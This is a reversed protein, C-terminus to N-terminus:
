WSSVEWEVSPLPSPSARTRRIKSSDSPVIATFLVGPRPLTKVTRSGTAGRPSSVKCQGSIKNAIFVFFHSDWGPLRRKIQVAIFIKSPLLIFINGWGGAGMQCLKAQFPVPFNQVLHLQGPQLLM